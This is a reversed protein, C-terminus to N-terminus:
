SRAERLLARIHDLQAEPQIDAPDLATFVSAREDDDLWHATHEDAAHLLFVRRQGRRPRKARFWRHSDSTPFYLVPERGRGKLSTVVKLKAQAWQPSRRERARRLRATSMVEALVVLRAQALRDILHLDPLREVEARVAETLAPSAHGLERVAIEEGHIWDTTFFVAETGTPLQEPADAALTVLRGTTDGLAPDSRLPVDVRVLLLNAAPELGHVNSTGAQQVTGRFIFSSARTLEALPPDTADAPDAM